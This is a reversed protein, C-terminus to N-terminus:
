ATVNQGLSLDFNFNAEARARRTQARADFSAVEAECHFCRVRDLRCINALM